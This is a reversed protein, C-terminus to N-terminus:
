NGGPLPVDRRLDWPNASPAALCSLDFRQRGGDRFILTLGVRGSQPDDEGAMRWLEHSRGEGRSPMLALADPLWRRQPLTLDHASFGDTAVSAQQEPTLAAYLLLLGQDRVAIDAAQTGAYKWLKFQQAENLRAMAALASLSYRGRRAAFERCGQTLHEPIQRDRLLAWGRHRFRLPSASANWECDYPLCLRDLARPPSTVGTLWGRPTREPPEVCDFVDFADSLVAVKRERAFQELDVEWELEPGPLAPTDPLICDRSEFHRLAERERPNVVAVSRDVTFVNGGSPGASTCPGILLGARAGDGQRRFLACELGVPQGSAPPAPPLTTIRRGDRDVTRPRGVAGYYSEAFTLFAARQRASM